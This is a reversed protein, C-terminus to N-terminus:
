RLDHIRARLAMLSERSWPPDALISGNAKLWHKGREAAISAGIELLRSPLMLLALHGHEDEPTIPQLSLQSGEICGDAREM